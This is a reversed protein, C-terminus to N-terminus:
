PFAMKEAVTDWSYTGLVHQQGSAAMRALRDADSLAELIAEALLRPDARDVLFGHGGDSLIEPLGHRRLGLVPTRSVLAELYVQGWPDNLMPQVLLTSERYLRQLEEWPLYSHFTIAPNSPVYQRSRADGVITLALDPRKAQAIQFADILLLGGKARFYHKAVFLLSPKAYDKSGVYPAIRGMGSGVATVRDPPVGYHSILNDRVYTGFTFIHELDAFSQRELREYSDLIRPTYRQTETHYPRSLAWTHDCYLYHKIGRALDAAPLDWGGTHLVHRVGTQETADSVQLALRRRSLESRLLAEGRVLSGRGTVANRAAVHLKGALSLRPHIGEVAIGFRELADALNKPAGSWTHADLPDGFVSTLAVRDFRRQRSQRHPADQASALMVTAVSDVRTVPVDHALAFCPLM